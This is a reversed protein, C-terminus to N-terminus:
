IAGRGGIRGQENELERTGKIGRERTGKNELERTGKIGLERNM